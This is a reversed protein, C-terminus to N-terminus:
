ELMREKTGTRTAFISSLATSSSAILQNSSSLSEVSATLIQLSATFFNFLGVNVTYPLNVWATVGDGYKVRLFDTEIGQEGIKLIPNATVWQAATGRRVQITQSM